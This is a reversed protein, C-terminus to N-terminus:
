QKEQLERMIKRYLIKRNLVIPVAVIASISLLTVYAPVIMYGILMSYGIIIELALLHLGVLISTVLVVKTIENVYYAKREPSLRNSGILISLAPFSVLYPYRNVIKFRYVAVLVLIIEPLVFSPVLLLVVLKSGYSTPEGYMGFHTPVVNPLVFYFLVPVVALVVILAVNVALLVKGVADLSREPIVFGGSSVGMVVSVGSLSFM